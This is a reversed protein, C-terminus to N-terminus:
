ISYDLFYRGIEDLVQRCRRLDFRTSRASGPPAASRLGSGSDLWWSQARRARRHIQQVQQRANEPNLGGAYGCGLFRKRAIPWDAPTVGPGGPACFLVAVRVFSNSRKPRTEELLAEALRLDDDRVPIIFTKTAHKHVLMALEKVDWDVPGTCCANLQIRNLRPWVAAYFELLEADDGRLFARCLEGCLHGALRLNPPVKALWDLGPHCEARGQRERHLLFAWEIPLYFSTVSLLADPEVSEDAGTFTVGSFSM